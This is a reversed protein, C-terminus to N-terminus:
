TALNQEVWLGTTEDLVYDEGPFPPVCAGENKVVIVKSIIITQTERLSIFVRLDM